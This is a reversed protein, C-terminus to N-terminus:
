FNNDSSFWDVICKAPGPVVSNQDGQYFGKEPFCIPDIFIKTQLHNLYNYLSDYKAYKENNLSKRAVETALGMRSHFNFM